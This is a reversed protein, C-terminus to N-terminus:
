SGIGGGGAEKAGAIDEAARKAAHPRVGERQNHRGIGPMPIQGPVEDGQFGVADIGIRKAPMNGPKLRALWGLYGTEENAAIRAQEMVGFRFPLPKYFEQHRAM